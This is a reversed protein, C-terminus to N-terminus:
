KIFKNLINIDFTNKTEYKENTKKSIKSILSFYRLFRM